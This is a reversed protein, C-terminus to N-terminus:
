AVGAIRLTEWEVHYDEGGVRHVACKQFYPCRLRTTFSPDKIFFNKAPLIQQGDGTSLREAVRNEEITEEWWTRNYIGL